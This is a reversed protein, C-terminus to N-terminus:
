ANKSVFVEMGVKVLQGESEKTHQLGVGFCTPNSEKANVTLLPRQEKDFVGQDPEITTMKCREVPAVCFFRSPGISCSNWTEEAFPALKEKLGSVIINGRFRREDVDIGDVRRDLEDVSEQSVLLFPHADAFAIENSTGESFVEAERGEQPSHRVLRVPGYTKFEEPHQESLYKNFWEACADGEDAGHTRDGWVRVRMTKDSTSNYKLPIKLTEMGPADVHLFDGHFSPQITMMKPFNRATVARRLTPDDVTERVLLWFRDFKFGTTSIELQDVTMSHCSKIPFLHLAVVKASLSEASKPQPVFIKKKSKPPAPKSLVFVLFAQTILYVFALFAVSTLM